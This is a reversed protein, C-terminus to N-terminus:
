VIECCIKHFFLCLDCKLTNIVPKKCKFLPKQTNKPLELTIKTFIECFKMLDGKFLQRIECIETWLNHCTHMMLLQFTSMVTKLLPNPKKAYVGGSFKVETGVGCWM